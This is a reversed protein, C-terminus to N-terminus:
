RTVPSSQTHWQESGGSLGADYVTLALVDGTTKSGGIVATQTGNSPLNISVIETATSSTTGRYTTENISNSSVTLVQWEIIRICWYEPPRHQCKNLSSAWCCHASLNDGSQVTYSATETGGTLGSDFAVISVTDGTTKSGGIGIRVPGNQNISLAISETAGTSVSQAYTTANASTSKITLATGVSTATVALAQLDIDANIATKIATAISTLNDGSM